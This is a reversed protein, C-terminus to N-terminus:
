NYIIFIFRIEECRYYGLTEDGRTSISLIEGHVRCLDTMINDYEYDTDMYYM